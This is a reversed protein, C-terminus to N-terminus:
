ETHGPGSGAYCWCWGVALSHGVVVSRGGSAVSNRLSRREVVVEPGGVVVVWSRDIEVSTAVDYWRLKWKWILSIAPYSSSM